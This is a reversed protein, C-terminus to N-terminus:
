SASALRFPLVIILIFHVVVARINHKGLVVPRHALVILECGCCLGTMMLMSVHLFVCM